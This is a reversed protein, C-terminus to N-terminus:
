EDRNVSRKSDFGDPYRNRLKIVNMKMIDDLSYGLAYASLTLYWLTDGLEEALHHRDFEHGQFLHKKYIDICEGAEGNLGMLGNLLRNNWSGPNATRLVEDVYEDTTIDTANMEKFGGKEFEKAISMFAYLYM